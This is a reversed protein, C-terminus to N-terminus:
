PSKLEVSFIDVVDRFTSQGSPLTCIVFSSPPRQRQEDLQDVHALNRGIEAFMLNRFKELSNAGCVRSKLDGSHEKEESCRKKLHKLPFRM